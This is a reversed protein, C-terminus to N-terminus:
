QIHKSSTPIIADCLGSPQQNNNPIESNDDIAEPLNEIGQRIQQTNKEDLCFMDENPQMFDEKQDYM